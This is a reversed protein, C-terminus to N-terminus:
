HHCISLTLNMDTSFKLSTLSWLKVNFNCDKPSHHWATTHVPTQQKMPVTTKESINNDLYEPTRPWHSVTGNPLIIRPCQTMPHSLEPVSENPSITRANRLVATDKNEPDLLELSNSGTHQSSSADCGLLSWYKAVASNFIKWDWM